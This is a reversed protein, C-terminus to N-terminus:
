YKSVQNEWLKDFIPVSHDNQYDIFQELTQLGFKLMFFYLASHKTKQVKMAFNKKLEPHEIFQTYNALDDKILELGANFDTKFRETTSPICM